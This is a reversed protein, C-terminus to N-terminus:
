YERKYDTIENEQLLKRLEVESRAFGIERDEGTRSDRAKLTLEGTCVSARVVLSEGPKLGLGKKKKFM